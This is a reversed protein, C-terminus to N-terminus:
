SPRDVVALHCSRSRGWALAVLHAALDVLCITRQDPPRPMLPAAGIFEGRLEGTILEDAAVAFFGGGLVQLLDGGEHRTFAALAEEFVDQGHHQLLAAHM